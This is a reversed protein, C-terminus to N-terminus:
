TQEDSELDDDDEIDILKSDDWYGKKLLAEDEEGEMNEFEKKTPEPLDFGPDDLM